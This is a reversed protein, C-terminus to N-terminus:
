ASAHWDIWFAEGKEHVHGCHPAVFHAPVLLSGREVATELVRRRTQASQAPDLCFKTQWDPYRLQIPHHIVDGVFLGRQGASRLDVVSNGPTHGPAAELTFTDDVDHGDEVLLAQGSEVTPLVSDAYVRQWLANETNTFADSEVRSYVYRANPFTPVWRGDKLQTNWGVHDVHMHTCMVYDVEEPAVGAARLNDLWGTQMRHWQPREPREKDNGCCTDILVTHRPTRVLWAHISIVMANDAPDYHEGDMWGREAEFAAADRDHFMDDPKFGRFVSEPIATITTDGIRTSFM